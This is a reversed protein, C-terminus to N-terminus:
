VGGPMGGGASGPMGGGFFSEFIKFPDSFGGGGGGGGGGGSFFSSTDFEFQASGGPFGQQFGQQFGGPFGGGGGGGGPPVQGTTSGTQDYVRRKDPDSCVVDPLPSRPLLPHQHGFAPPRGYLAHAVCTHGHRLTEYAAAIEAFKKTAADREQESM